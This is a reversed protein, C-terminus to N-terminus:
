SIRKWMYVSLFPPMNNHANNSGTNDITVTHNHTNNFNITRANNSGGPNSGHGKSPSFYNGLSFCGWASTASGIETGDLNM